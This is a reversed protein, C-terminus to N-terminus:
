LGWHNQLEGFYLSESNGNNGDIQWSTILGSTVTGQVALLDLWFISQSFFFFQFGAKIAHKM